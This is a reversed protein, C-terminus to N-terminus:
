EESECDDAQGKRKETFIQDRSSFQSRALLILQLALHRCNIITTIYSYKDRCIYHASAAIVAVVFLARIMLGGFANTARFRFRNNRKNKKNEYNIVRPSVFLDRARKRASKKGREKRGRTKSLIIVLRTIVCALYLLFFFLPLSAIHTKLKPKHRLSMFPRAEGLQCSRDRSIYFVTYLLSYNYRLCRNYM